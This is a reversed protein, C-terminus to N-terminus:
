PTCNTFNPKQTWNGNNNNGFGSCNTVLLVNWGTLDQNFLIASAFMSQMNTVSSTDWGGINQNFATAQSFMNNMNTVSSVNWSGIDQNFKTAGFMFVMNEVNGVDWSSIDKNFPSSSLMAEMNTVNSVDWSGIDQNFSSNNFMFRMDTVSSTDWSGIDQNFSDANQFMAKMNTVNSVDWSGIDKNFSSNDFMFVMNKVNSVDWSSIDKNFACGSFMSSMDVVNSVNWDSIDQNFTHKTNTGSRFIGSMDAVNSVDWNGIPQNFLIARFFVQKMNTVSSTNWKSIDQNFLIASAFMNSMDTVNSTDWNGIDQNFLSNTFSIINDSSLNYGNLLNNMDTVKTTVVKTVDEDNAVMERLTTENVITYEVGDIYGKNGASAWDYAKITVGNDDLYIPNGYSPQLYNDYQVFPASKIIISNVSVNSFALIFNYHTKSYLINPDDIYTEITTNYFSENVSLRYGDSELAYIFYYDNLLVLDKEGLGTLEIKASSINEKEVTVLGFDTDVLLDISVSSAYIDVTGSGYIPLYSRLFYDINGDQENDVISWSYTGYPIVLAPTNILDNPTITLTTTFGTTTSTFVLDIEDKFIHNFESFKNTIGAGKNSEETKELNFSLSIDLDLNVTEELISTEDNDRVCSIFFLPIALLILLNKM